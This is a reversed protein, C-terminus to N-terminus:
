EGGRLAAVEASLQQVARILVPVFKSYDVMWEDNIETVAAPFVEVMEQAYGGHSRTGDGIWEFDYMQLANVIALGDFEQPDRKKRADSSTNFSTAAGNTAVSGVPSGAGAPSYFAIHAKNSTLTTSSRLVESAYSIGTRGGTPSYGGGMDLGGKFHTFEAGVTVANGQALWEIATGRQRGNAGTIVELTLTNLSATGNPGIMGISPAAHLSVQVTGSFRPADLGSMSDFVCGSVLGRIVKMDRIHLDVTAPDATPPISAIEGLTVARACKWLADVQGDLTVGDFTVNRGWGWVIAGVPGSLGAGIYGTGSAPYGTRGKWDTGSTYNTDLKVRVDRFRANHGGALVICGSKQPSIAPYAGFDFERWPYHGCNEIRVGDFVVDLMDLRSTGDEDDGITHVFIATGCNRATFDRFVVGVAHKLAGGNVHAGNHGAVRVGRFCNIATCGIFQVDSLGQEGGFGGGGTGSGIGPEINRATCNVVRVNSAGWAFSPGLNTNHNQGPTPPPLRSGDTILDYIRINTQKRAEYPDMGNFSTTRANNVFGGISPYDTIYMVAGGGYVTLNSSTFVSSACQYELGEMHVPIRHLGAFDWCAQIAARDDGTGDGRAGFMRPTVRSSFLAPRLMVSGATTLGPGSSVVEFAYGEARTQIIAGVPYPVTSAKLADLDAITYDAMQITQELVEQAQTAAAQAQNRASEITGIATMAGDFQDIMGMVQLTLARSDREVVVTRNIHTM